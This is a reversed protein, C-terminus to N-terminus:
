RWSSRTKLSTVYTYMIRCIRGAFPVIAGTTWPGKSVGAVFHREFLVTLHFSELSNLFMPPSSIVINDGSPAPLRFLAAHDIGHGFLNSISWASMSYDRASLLDRFLNPM